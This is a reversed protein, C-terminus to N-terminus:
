KRKHKARRKRGGNQNLSNLFKKVDAPDDPDLDAERMADKFEDPMEEEPEEERRRNPKNKRTTTRARMEDNVIRRVASASVAKKYNAPKGLVIGM